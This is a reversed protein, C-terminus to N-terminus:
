RENTRFWSAVVQGQGEPIEMLIAVDGGTSVTEHSAVLPSGPLGTSELWRSGNFYRSAAGFRDADFYTALLENPATFALRVRQEADDPEFYLSQSSWRETDVTLQFVWLDIAGPDVINGQQKFLFAVNGETDSDGDGLDAVLGYALDGVSVRLTSPTQWDADIRRAARFLWLTTSGIDIPVYYPVTVNGLDDVVLPYDLAAGLTPVTGNRTGPVRQASEWGDSPSIFSRTFVGPNNGGEVVFSLELHSGNPSAAVTPVDTDGPPSVWHAEGWSQTSADFIVAFMRDVTPTDLMSVVVVNGASDTAAGIDQFFFDPSSPEFVIEEQWDADRPKRLIRIQNTGDLARFALTINGLPDIVLSADLLLAPTRYQYDVVWESTVPDGRVIQFGGEAVLTAWVTGDSDTM